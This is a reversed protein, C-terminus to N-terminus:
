IIPVEIPLILRWLHLSHGWFIQSHQALMVYIMYGMDSYIDVFVITVRTVFLKERFMGAIKWSWARKGREKWRGAVAGGQAVGARRQLAAVALYWHSHGVFRFDGAPGDPVLACILIQISMTTKPLLYRYLPGHHPYAYM